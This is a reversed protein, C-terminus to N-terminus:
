TRKNNLRTLRKVYITLYITFYAVKKAVHILVKTSGKNEILLGRM